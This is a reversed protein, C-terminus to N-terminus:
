LMQLSASILISMPWCWTQQFSKIFTGILTAHWFYYHITPTFLVIWNYFQLRIRLWDNKLINNYIEKILIM